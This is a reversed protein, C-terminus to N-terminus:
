TSRAHGRGHRARRGPRGAPVRRPRRRVCAWPRRPTPSVSRQRRARAGPHGPPQALVPPGTRVLVPGRDLRDADRPAWDQRRISTPPSTWCCAARPSGSRSSPPRTCSRSSRRARAPPRRRRRRRVQAPVRRSALDNAPMAPAARTPWCTAPGTTSPSSRGTTCTRAACPGSGASTARGRDQQRHADGGDARAVPDPRHGRGGALARRASPAGTSPPSSRTATRGLDAEPLIAQLQRRVQWTFHGARLRDSPEGALIVPEDLAAQIESPTLRTWRGADALSRLIWDRRVVAPASAPVVLSGGRRGRRLSVSRAHTPSQPLSALLAAQAVTLEDMRVGFYVDAAAAIGYAEHGYFIENLYATIITRKGEEGPFTETLRMSQLIEKVKRVYRDSGPAIVDEPLLRARVLQQTITSAGRERGGAASEVLAALVAEMDVGLNDWFSRDEATTTADLVLPPIEDFAVVNRREDQFRGLEVKQDRDYLVTPQAFELDALASPEPLGASMATIVSGAVVVVLGLAIVTTSAVVGLAAGIARGVRRRPPTRRRRREAERVAVIRLASSM